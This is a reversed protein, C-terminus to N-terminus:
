LILSPWSLIIRITLIQPPPSESPSSTVTRDPWQPSSPSASASLTPLPLFTPPQWSQPPLPLPSLCHHHQAVDYAAESPVWHTSKEKKRTWKKIKIACINHMLMVLTKSHKLGLNTCILHHSFFGTLRLMPHFCHLALHVPEATGQFGEETVDANVFSEPQDWLGASERGRSWNCTGRRKRALRRAGWDVKVDETSVPVVGDLCLSMQISSAGKGEEEPGSKAM